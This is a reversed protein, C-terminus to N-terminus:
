KTRPPLSEKQNQWVQILLDLLGLMLFLKGWFTSNKKPANRHIGILQANGDIHNDARRCTVLYSLTQLRILPATSQRNHDTSSYGRDKSCIVQRTEFNHINM